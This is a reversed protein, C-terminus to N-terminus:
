WIDCCEALYRRMHSDHVGNFITQGLPPRYIDMAQEHTITNGQNEVPNAQGKQTGLEKRGDMAHDKHPGNADVFHFFVQVQWKGKYPPRWHNLECGRYMVLDGTNIEFAQGVVDDDNRGFYIPWIGSGPDFGLTLTGSIECSPRDKHKVLTKVQSM